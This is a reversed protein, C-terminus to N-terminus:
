DSGDNRIGLQHWEPDGERVVLLTGTADRVEPHDELYGNCLNCAAMLNSRNTLSGGSSRKRREHIGQIQGICGPEFGAEVLIVGLECSYGAEIMEEILPVREDKMLKARKKSRQKIPTRKLDSSGGM